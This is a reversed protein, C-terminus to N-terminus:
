KVGNRDIQEIVKVTIDATERAYILGGGEASKDLVFLYGEKDAIQKAAEELKKNFARLTDIKKSQVEKNLETAKKQYSALRGQLEEQKLKKAESSLVAAQKRFEDEMQKLEQEELDIIKQRSKIYEDLVGRIRKGEKSTDLVRQAEVFAAKFGEALSESRGSAVGLCLLLVAVMVVQKKKM